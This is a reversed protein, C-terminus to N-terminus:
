PDEIESTYSMANNRIIERLLTMLEQEHKNRFDNLEVRLMRLSERQSLIHKQMNNLRENTYNNEWLIGLIGGICVGTAFGLIILPWFLIIDM